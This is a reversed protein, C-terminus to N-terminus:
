QCVRHKAGVQLCTTSALRDARSDALRDFSAAAASRMAASSPPRALKAAAAADACAARASAVFLPSWGAALRLSRYGACKAKEGSGPGQCQDSM